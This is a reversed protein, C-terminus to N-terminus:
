SGPGTLTRGGTRGSVRYWNAYGNDDTLLGDGGYPIASIVLPQRVSDLDCYLRSCLTLTGYYEATREPPPYANYYNGASCYVSLQPAGASEGLTPRAYGNNGREPDLELYLERYGNECTLHIACFEEVKNGDANAVDSCTFLDLM